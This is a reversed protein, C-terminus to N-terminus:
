PPSTPATAPAASPPAIPAAGLAEIRAEDMFAQYAAHIKVADPDELDRVAAPDRELITRVHAEAGESLIADVGWASRDAPIPTKAVWTGNVYSFFDDGPRVSADMGATDLGWDGFQPAAPAAGARTAALSCVLATTLLFISRVRTMVWGWKPRGDHM